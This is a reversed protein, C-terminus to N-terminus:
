VRLLDSLLWAYKARRWANGGQELKQRRPGNMKMKEMGRLKRVADLKGM